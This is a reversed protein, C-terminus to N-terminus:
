MLSWGQGETEQTLHQPESGLNQPNPHLFLPALPSRLLQPGGFLLLSCASAEVRAMIVSTNLATADTELGAAGSM